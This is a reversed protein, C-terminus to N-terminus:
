GFGLLLTYTHTTNLIEVFAPDAAACCAYQAASALLASLPQDEVVFSVCQLLM